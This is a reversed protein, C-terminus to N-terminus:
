DRYASFKKEFLPEMQALEELSYFRKDNECQEMQLNIGGEKFQQQQGPDMDYISM